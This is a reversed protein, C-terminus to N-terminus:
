DPVKAEMLHRNRERQLARIVRIMVAFCLVTFIFEIVPAIGRSQNGAIWRIFDPINALGRAAGLLGIVGAGTIGHWHMQLSFLGCIILGGGVLLSGQLMGLAVAGELQAMGLGGLGLMILGSVFIQIRM